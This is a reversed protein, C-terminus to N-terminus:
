INCVECLLCTHGLVGGRNIEVPLTEEERGLFNLLTEPALAASGDAACREIGPLSLAHM